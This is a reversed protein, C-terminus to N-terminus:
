EWIGLHTDQYQPSDVHFTSDLSLKLKVNNERELGVEVMNNGLITAVVATRAVASIMVIIDDGHTANELLKQLFCCDDLCIMM